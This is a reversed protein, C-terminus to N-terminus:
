DQTDCPLPLSAPRLSQLLDSTLFLTIMHKCFCQHSPGRCTELGVDREFCCLCWFCVADTAAKDLLTKFVELSPSRVGRGGTVHGLAAGSVSEVEWVEAQPFQMNKHKVSGSCNLGMMWTVARRAAPPPFLGAILM